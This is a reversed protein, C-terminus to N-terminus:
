RGDGAADRGAVSAVTKRLPVTFLGDDTETPGSRRFGVSEYFRVANTSANVTLAALPAAAAHGHRIAARLLGRGIGEGQHSPDVFLLAIHGERGTAPTREVAIVGVPRDEYAAVLVCSGPATATRGLWDYSLLGLFTTIGRASTGPAIAARFARLVLDCVAGAEGPRMPRYVLAGTM